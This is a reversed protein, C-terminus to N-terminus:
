WYCNLTQWILKHGKSVGSHNLLYVCYTLSHSLILILKINFRYRYCQTIYFDFDKMLNSFMKTKYIKQVVCMAVAIRKKYGVYWTKTNSIHTQSLSNVPPRGWVSYRNLKGIRKHLWISLSITQIFFSFFFAFFRVFKIPKLLMKYNINHNSMVFNKNTFHTCKYVNLM